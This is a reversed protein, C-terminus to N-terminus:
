HTSSLRTPPRAEHFAACWRSGCATPGDMRFWWNSQELAPYRRASNTLWSKYNGIAIKYGVCADFVREDAQERERVIASRACLVAVVTGALATIWLFWRMRVSLAARTVVATTVVAFVALLAVVLGTFM